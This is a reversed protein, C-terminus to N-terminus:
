EKDQDKKLNKLVNWRHDPKEENNNRTYRNLQDLMDTDCTPNGNRDDPHVHRVPISLVTYEYLLHAVKIFDEDPSIWMVDDGEEITEKGFKIFLDVKHRVPQAYYELCRDCILDVTGKLKLSLQMLNNQKELRIRAMVDAKDVMSEEILEFFSDKLQYEFEHIGTKLGKWAIDYKSTNGVNKLFHLM